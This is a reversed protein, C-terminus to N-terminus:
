SVVNHPIRSAIRKLIFIPEFVFHILSESDEVVLLNKLDCCPELESVHTLFVNSTEDAILLDLFGVLKVDLQKTTANVLHVVGIQMRPFKHQLIHV